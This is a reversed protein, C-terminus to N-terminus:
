VCVCGKLYKFIENQSKRSMPQISSAGGREVPTHQGCFGADTLMLALLGSAVSILLLDSTLLNVRKM